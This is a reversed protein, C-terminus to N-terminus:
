APAGHMAEDLRCIDEIDIPCGESQMMAWAGDPDGPMLDVLLALTGTAKRSIGYDARIERLVQRANENMPKETTPFHEAPCTAGSM